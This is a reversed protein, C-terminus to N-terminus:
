STSSYTLRFSNLMVTTIRNSIFVGNNLVELRTPIVISSINNLGFAYSGIEILSEPLNITNLSNGYFAFDSINELGENLTLETISNKYFAFRGITEISKPIKLKTLKSDSFANDAISTITFVLGDTQITEPIYELNSLNSTTGLLTAEGKAPKDLNYKLNDFVVERAFIPEIFILILIIFVALKLRLLSNIIM